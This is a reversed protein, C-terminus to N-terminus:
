YHILKVNDIFVEPSSVKFPNSFTSQMGFYIKIETAGPHAVVAATMDFYIKKWESSTNAFYYSEQTNDAYIGIQFPQNTKFDLELFIPTGDIPLSTLPISKCEFFDMASTLLIKGSYTGEFVESPTNTKFITTDSDADYSFTLSVNEFDEKWAFVLDTDYVVVPSVKTVQDKVLTVEGSYSQLLRYKDRTDSIGNVKIGADVRINHKGENLLPFTVPLEYAGVYKDDIYVWADTINHSNSGETSYDTTLEFKDITIYSPIEAKECSFFTIGILLLLIYFKANHV